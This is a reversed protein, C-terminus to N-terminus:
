NGVIVRLDTTIEEVAYCSGPTTTAAKMHSTGLPSFVGGSNRAAWLPWLLLGRTAARGQSTAPFLPATPALFGGSLICFALARWWTTPSPIVTVCSLVGWAGPM